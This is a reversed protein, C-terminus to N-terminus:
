FVLFVFNAFFFFIKKQEKRKIGKQPQWLSDDAEM